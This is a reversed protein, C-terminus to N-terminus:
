RVLIAEPAVQAVLVEEGHNAHLMRFQKIRQGTTPVPLQAGPPSVVSVSVHKLQIISTTAGDVDVMPVTVGGYWIVSTYRASIHVSFSDILDLIHDFPFIQGTKKYM